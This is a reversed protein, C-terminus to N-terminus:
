GIYALNELNSDKFNNIKSTSRHRHDVIQEELVSCAIKRFLKKNKDLFKIYKTAKKLNHVFFYITKKIETYDNPDKCIVNRLVGIKKKFNKIDEKVERARVDSLDEFYERMDKIENINLNVMKNMCDLNPEM